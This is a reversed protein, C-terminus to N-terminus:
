ITRRRASCTAASARCTPPFNWGHQNESSSAPSATRTTSAKCVAEIDDFTEPMRLGAKEMLDYRGAVAMYCDCTWPIGYIATRTPSRARPRCSTTSTGIRRPRTRTRVFESSRTFWGAGIWRNIYIFTINLVDYAFGQTSLELDIRQNYIPFGPTDYNM